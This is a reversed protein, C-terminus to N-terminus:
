RGGSLSRILTELGLFQRPDDNELYLATTSRSAHGLGVSVEHLHVGHNLAHISHTHRLWHTSARQLARGSGPARAEAQAAARSFIGKFLKGIGDPTIPRGDRAQALLPTEATCGLPEPLGRLALNERLAEVVIGPLLVSRLAGRGSQVALRWVPGDVGDLSGVSLAGTRADALETRRLGTAYALLLALRDRHEQFSYETRTVSELLGRWQAQDLTRQSADFAAPTAVRAVGAFPNITLYREGVLWEGMATLISRATERSRESLPGAFPRWDSLGREGRRTAIWREAPQPDALFRDIYDACAPADLSSLAKEQELVAWLLLREAERRYARRTHESASRADLWAFIARIDTNFRASPPARNTGSSGDLTAPLRLAELPAVTLPAHEGPDAPASQWQRRPLLARPSVSYQLAQEHLRLWDVVRQAGKPGLRPVSAYWRHGRQEVREIVDAVTMLGAAALRASVAPEFWGDVPHDPRPEQVLSAEMRALAEAQRRRLRANRAARRDLAPSSGPPYAEEFLALLESEGYVGDPDIRERFEDLSPAASEAPTEFLPISGPRLRLLHAAEIDRARRALVSLTDRLADILRRTVRVDTGADGYSAHLQAEAVGDLYGRYLAFHQRTLRSPGHLRGPQPTAPTSAHGSSPTDSSM